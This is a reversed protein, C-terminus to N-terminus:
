EEEVEYLEDVRIGFADAAAELTGIAIRDSITEETFIKHATSWSLRAAFQFDTLKWGRERALRPILNRRIKGMTIDMTPNLVM